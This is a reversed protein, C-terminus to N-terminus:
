MQRWGVRKGSMPSNGVDVGQTSKNATSDTSIMKLGGGPVQVIVFGVSIANSNYTALINNPSTSVYSGKSYDFQYTWSSGGVTCATNSPINTKVSLTGLTLQPDLNVREGATPFDVYWGNKQTWDVSNNSSSRDTADVTIITQQVLNANTRINGYNTGLDKFAYLSQTNTTGLDSTGLYEGTGIYIVRSGNVSGLEPRSAIPQPNGSADMLVGLKQVAPPSVSMDFRWVNGQLDGGYVYKTTNDINGNDAWAAIKALSGPSTTTGVNTSVKDLIAGTAVDLVYLWELGSGTGGGATTGQVTYTPVNNYGSTVLVVWKGDYARKTIVPYGYTLGVDPHSVTCVASNSCFDWLFVPASPNTIDLAYYGRGGSNLGGVLVTHWGGNFYADMVQPSGDVYYQHMNGYNFDSLMYLKSWLMRPVYAWLEAGIHGTGTQADFAHLMGDNAGMYLLPTRSANAAQFAGYTPSVADAFAFTPAAVYAPTADVTDGLVHSNPVSTPTRWRFIGPTSATNENSRDGRLFNVLDVGDNITTLQSTTLTSCQTLNSPVGCVNTFISQEAATMSGFAFPKLLKSALDLTYITRSSWLTLDLTAGADWLHPANISGDTNVTQVFVNGSWVYTDYSSSYVLNNQQTINPNSTSSAAAAALRISISSLANAMGTAVSRPNTGHYYTGHGNVAAHWLDDLATPNDHLPIPWQCKSSAGGSVPPWWCGTAGSTISAFDGTAATAYNSQWTLLGDALGLTFTTMHQQIQPDTPTTAVNNTSVDTGATNTANNWLTKDRLDTNYYYAAVDALTNTCGGNSYNGAPCNPGEYIGQSQTAANSDQDGVATQGDMGVAETDGNSNTNWYGDTTLLTFNQQCSYQIPDDTMGSNIYDHKGGFYRGARALASRLPTSNGPAQTYLTNYFNYRQSTTSGGIFDSVPVYHSTSVKNSSSVPNNTNSAPNITIFGVRYSSTLNAFTQGVITKMMQIRTRYWAYWNSFNTMEAAYTCTSASCGGWPDNRNPYPGYANNTPVVDTRTFQGYRAYIYTPPLYKAECTVAPLPATPAAPSASPPAVPPAAAAAASNCFRVRAANTYNPLATSSAYCYALHQDSCYETPTLQYYFPTNTSMVAVNYPQRSITYTGSCKTSSSGTYAYTFSSPVFGSPATATTGVATVTVNNVNCNTGGSVTIVDGVLIMHNYFYATVTKSSNTYFLGVGTSASGPATFSVSAQEPLGVVSPNVTAKTCSLAGTGWNQGAYFTFTNANPVTIVPVANVLPYPTTAGSGSTCVVDIIDGVVLGHNTLTGTVTTSTAFGSLIVGTVPPGKPTAYSFAKATVGAETPPLNGPYCSTSPVACYPEGNLKTVGGSNQYTAETFQGAKAPSTTAALQINGSSSTYYDVPVNTWPSGYSAYSAGTYDVAPLYTFTPNYAVFNYQYAYWPPDGILCQTNGDSNNLCNVSNANNNSISSPYHPSNPTFLYDGTNGWNPAVQNINDPMFTWQMSGSTDMTLLVNPKVVTNSSSSLPATAIDTLAAEAVLATMTGTLTIAAVAIAVRTLTSPQRM